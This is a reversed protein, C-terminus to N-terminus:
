SANLTAIAQRVRDSAMPLRGLTIGSLHNMGTTDLQLLKAGHTPPRLIRACLMGPVRIDGAYKAAGTVKELGDIRRPSHSM